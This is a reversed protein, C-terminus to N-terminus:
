TPHPPKPQKRVYKPIFSKSINTKYCTYLPPPNSVRRRESISQRIELFFTILQLIQCMSNKWSVTEPTTTVQVSCIGGDKKLLQDVCRYYVILEEAACCELAEISVIKDYPTEPIPLSRYDCLLVTIKDGLGAAAIREEFLQKQQTSLTLATVRCGTKTVARISFSGWGCGIELLHDTPQLKVNEIMRDIKRIQAAELTDLEYGPDNPLLFIASSYAALYNTHSTKFQCHTIKLLKSYLLSM